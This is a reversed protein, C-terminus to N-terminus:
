EVCEGKLINVAIKYDDYMSGLQPFETYKKSLKELEDPSILGGGENLIALQMLLSAYKNDKQEPMGIKIQFDEPADLVLNYCNSELNSYNKQIAYITKEQNKDKWASEFGLKETILIIRNVLDSESIPKSLTVKEWSERNIEMKNMEGIFNM